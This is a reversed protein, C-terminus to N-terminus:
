PSAWKYSVVREGVGIFMVTPDRYYTGEGGDRFMITSSGSIRDGPYRAIVIFEKGDLLGCDHVDLESLLCKCGITKM